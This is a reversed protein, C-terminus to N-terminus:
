ERNDRGAFGAGVMWGLGVWRSYSETILIIVWIITTAALGSIVIIPM